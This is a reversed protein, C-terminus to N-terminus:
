HVAERRNFVRNHGRKRSQERIVLNAKPNNLKAESYSQLWPDVTLEVTGSWETDYEKVILKNSGNEALQLTPVKDGSQLSIVNKSETLGLETQTDEKIEKLTDGYYNLHLPMDGKTNTPLQLNDITLFGYRLEADKAILVEHTLEDLGDHGEIKLALKDNISKVVQPEKKKPILDVNLELQHTGEKDELEFQNVAGVIEEYEASDELTINAYEALDQAFEGKYSPLDCQEETQGSACGIVTFSPPLIFEIPKTRYAIGNSIEGSNGTVHLYAPVTRGLIMTQGATPLACSGGVMAFPACSEEISANILGVNSTKYDIHHGKGDQGNFTLAQPAVQESNYAEHAANLESITLISGLDAKYDTMKQLEGKPNEGYAQLTLMVTSGAAGLVKCNEQNSSYNFGEPSTGCSKATLNTEWKLAKPVFTVSVPYERHNDDTLELNIVQAKDFTVELPLSVQSNPKIDQNTKINKLGQADVTKVRLTKDKLQDDSITAKGYVYGFSNVPKAEPCVKCDAAEKGDVFCRLPPSSVPWPDAGNKNKDANQITFTICQSRDWEKTISSFRYFDKFNYFNPQDAHIHLKKIEDMYLNSPNCTGDGCAYATVNNNESNFHLQYHDLPTTGGVFEKYNIHSSGQMDLHKVNVGGFIAASGEMELKGSLYMHGNITSSGSLEIDDDNYTWILLPKSEINIHSQGKLSVDEKIHLQSLAEDQFLLQSSGELELEKYYYDGRPLTVKGDGKLHLSKVQVSGFIKSSGAVELKKESNINGYWTLNGGIDISEGYDNIHVPRDAAGLAVVKISANDKIHLQIAGTQPQILKASGQLDFKDFWHAGPLLSVQASGSLLLSKAHLLYDLKGQGSMQLEAQTNLTGTISNNLELKDKGYHVINVPSDATGLNTSVEIKDKIYLNIPGTQSAMIKGSGALKLSDLWYDGSALYLIGSGTVEITGNIMVPGNHSIRCKNTVKINKYVNNTHVTDKNNNYDCVLEQGTNATKFSPLDLVPEDWQSRWQNHENWMLDYSPATNNTLICDKNDCKGDLNDKKSFDLKGNDTGNINTSWEMNIEGNENHSQAAYPFLEAINTTAASNNSSAFVSTSFLLSVLIIIKKNMM